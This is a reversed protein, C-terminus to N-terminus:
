DPVSLAERTVSVQPTTRPAQGEPTERMRQQGLRVAADAKRQEEARAEKTLRMPREMLIMGEVIVPDPTGKASFMGDILPHNSPLPRWGQQEQTRMYAFNQQGFVEYRKWEISLGYEHEFQEVVAVPVDLPNIASDGSRLRTREEQQPRLTEPAESVDERLVNRPRAM